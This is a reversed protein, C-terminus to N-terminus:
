MSNRKIVGALTAGGAIGALIDTLADSVSPTYWGVMFAMDRAYLTMGLEFLEWLFSGGLAILIILLKMIFLSPSGSIRAGYSTGLFWLWVFGFFIGGGIHLPIDIWIFSMEYLGAILAFAHVALILFLTLVAM